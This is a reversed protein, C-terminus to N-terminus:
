CFDWSCANSGSASVQIGTSATQDVIAGWYCGNSDQNLWGSQFVGTQWEMIYGMVSSPEYPSPKYQAKNAYTELLSWFGPLLLVFILFSFSFSSHSLPYTGLQIVGFGSLTLNQQLSGGTATHQYCGIDYVTVDYLAYSSSVSDSRSSTVQTLAVVFVLLLFFFKM